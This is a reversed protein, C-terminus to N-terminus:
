QRFGVFIGFTIAGLLIVLLLILHSQNPMNPANPKSSRHCTSKDTGQHRQLKLFGNLCCLFSGGRDISTNRIGMIALGTLRGRFALM